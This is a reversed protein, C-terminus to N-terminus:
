TTHSLFVGITLGLFFIAVIVLMMSGAPPPAPDLWQLQKNLLDREPRNM